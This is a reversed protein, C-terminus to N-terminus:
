IDTIDQIWGSIAELIPFWSIRLMWIAYSVVFFLAVFIVVYTIFKCLYYNKPGMLKWIFIGPHAAFYAVDVRGEPPDPAHPGNHGKGVPDRNALRAPWVEVEMEMKADYDEIDMKADHHRRLGCLGCCRGKRRRLFVHKQRDHEMINSFIVTESLLKVPEEDKGSDGGAVDRFNALVRDLSYSVTDYIVDKPDGGLTITDEDMLRFEMRASALPVNLRFTWRYNFSAFVNAWQHPDTNFKQISKKGYFDETVLKGEVIVDNREGFDRFISINDVRKILMRVEVSKERRVEEMNVPDYPEDGIQLDVIYRLTGTSSIDDHPLKLGAVEIPSSPRPCLSPAIRVPGSESFGLYHPPTVTMTDGAREAAETM